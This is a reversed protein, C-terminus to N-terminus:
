SALGQLWCGNSDSLKLDEQAGVQHLGSPGQLKRVAVIGEKYAKPGTGFVSDRLVLSYGKEGVGWDKDM